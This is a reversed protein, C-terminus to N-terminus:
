RRAVRAVRRVGREHRQEGGRHQEDDEGVVQEHQQDAPLHHADAGVEQDAVVPLQRVRSAAGDLGEQDGPEAVDAEQEADEHEGDRRARERMLPTRAADGRAPQALVRCRDGGQQQQAADDPLDACNGSCVQSGSAIAPGVGILASIWAAVITAAPM